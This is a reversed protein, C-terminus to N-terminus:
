LNIDIDVPSLIGGVVTISIGAAIENRQARDLNDVADNGVLFTEGGELALIIVAGPQLLDVTKQLGAKVKKAQNDSLM